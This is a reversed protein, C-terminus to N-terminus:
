KKKRVRVIKSGLLDSGYDYVVVKARTASRRIPLRLAVPFGERVYRDYREPEITLEVTQWTQGVPLNQEDGIFV